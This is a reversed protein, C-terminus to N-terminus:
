LKSKKYTFVWIMIKFFLLAYLSQLYTPYPLEAYMDILLYGILYLFSIQMLLLSLKILLTIFANLITFMVLGKLRWLNKILKM